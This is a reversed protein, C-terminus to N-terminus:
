LCHLTYYYHHILNSLLARDSGLDGGGGGGFFFSLFLFPEIGRVLGLRGVFHFDSKCTSKLLAVPFNLLNIIIFSALSSLHTYFSFRALSLTGLPPHVSTVM